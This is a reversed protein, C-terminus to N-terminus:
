PTSLIAYSDAVPSNVGEKAHLHRWGPFNKVQENWEKVEAETEDLSVAVVDLKEKNAPSKQWENLENALRKCSECDSSWFLLLKYPATGRWKHFEFSNGQDDKIIFNPSITGPTLKKAGEIRKIIEQRKTTLCNPDDIYKKLMNMGETIGYTEYGAYFYDVMWGYIKPHGKSAKECATRGAEIFLPDRLEKTDVQISYLRMYGDMFKALERSQIILPDKLDIGEFYNKLIEKPRDEEKGGWVVPAIYQFQFLNSVYLDQYKKTQKKLWANYKIRRKEFEKVAGKYFKSKPSDYNLLFYRLIDIQARKEINETMFAHYATNETEDTNFKTKENNSIYLPNVFLEIDQKNIFITRESPYPSDSEKGRYDIRLVFEGPLYKEPVKMIATEGNKVGKVEAIPKIAKLGEFPILSVKGDYVDQLHVTVLRENDAGRLEPAAFVSSSTVVAMCAIFWKFIRRKM